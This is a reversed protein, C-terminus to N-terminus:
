KPRGVQSSLRDCQMRYREFCVRDREVQEVGVQKFGLRELVTRSLWSAEAFWHGETPRPCRNFAERLLSTAIGRRGYDPHVYVSAIRGSSEIGCFAIPEQNQTALLTLPEAILDIFAPTEAYGAWARIQEPTYHGSALARVSAAYVARLKAVDPEAAVRLHLESTSTM